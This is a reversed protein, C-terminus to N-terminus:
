LKDTFQCLTHTLAAVPLYATMFQILFKTLGFILPIRPV